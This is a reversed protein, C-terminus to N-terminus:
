VPATQLFPKETLRTTRRAGGAGTGDLARLPSAFGQRRHLLCAPLHPALPHIAQVAQMVRNINRQGQAGACMSVAFRPSLRPVLAVRLGSRSTLTIAQAPPVRACLGPHSCPSLTATRKNKREVQSVAFRPLLHRLFACRLGSWDKRGRACRIPKAATYPRLVYRWTRRVRLARLPQGVSHLFPVFPAVKCFAANHSCRTAIEGPVATGKRQGQRVASATRTCALFSRAKNGRIQM